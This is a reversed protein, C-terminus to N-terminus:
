SLCESVPVDVRNAQAFVAQVPSGDAIQVANSDGQIEGGPVRIQGLGSNTPM